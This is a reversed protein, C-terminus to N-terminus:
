GLMIREEPYSYPTADPSRMQLALLASVAGVRGMFMSIIIITKGISSLHATIGTSVGLCTTASVSEILLSWSSLHPETILLMFTTICIWTMTLTIITVAKYVQDLPINRGRIEVVSKRLFLARVMMIVITITTIKVGSGTSGPASGIFAICLMLWVTAPHMMSISERLFGASKFSIADFLSYLLQMCPHYGTLTKPTELLYIGITTCVTLLATGYLVVKTQLSLRYRERKTMKIIANLLDNGTIFGIGGIFTLMMITVMFPIQQDHLKILEHHPTIGANCFSSVAYFIAYFIAQGTPMSSFSTFYLAAAGIMEVIITYKIIFLLLDPLNKKLEMELMQEAMVQRALGFDVFLSFAFLSMTIIGIGGIQILILLIFHGFLTFDTTPVTFLGTVCTTSVATFFIDFISMPTTHSCPLALLVTGILATAIMSLLITRGPSFHAVSKNSM